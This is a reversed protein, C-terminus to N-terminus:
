RRGEDAAVRGVEDLDGDVPDVGVLVAAEAREDPVRPRQASGPRRAQRWRRELIIGALITAGGVIQLWHLRESLILAAFVAAVFPQVNAFLTARSPGVRHIATFWLLNTLFLPGVIAFALGVWVLWGLSAYDQEALQPSS